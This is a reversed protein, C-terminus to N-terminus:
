PKHDKRRRVAPHPLVTRRKAKLQEVLLEYIAPSTLESIEDKLYVYTPDKGVFAEHTENCWWHFEQGGEGWDRRKWERVMSTVHGHDDTHEHLRM